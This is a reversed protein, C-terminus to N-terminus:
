LWRFIDKIEFFNRYFNNNIDMAWIQNKFKQRYQERANYDYKIIMNKGTMEAYYLIEPIFFMYNQNKYCFAKLREWYEQDAGFSMNDFYGLIKFVDKKFFSHALDPIPEFPANHWAPAEGGIRLSYNHVSYIKEDKEFVKIIKEFRDPQSFDDSDHITYFDYNEFEMYKLGLNRSYYCGLNTENNVVVVRKDYLFKEAEKLTNDTSGDNIIVLTFNTHTQELISYVARKLLREENYVPMIVLVKKM